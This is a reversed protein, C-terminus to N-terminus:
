ASPLRHTGLSMRCGKGDPNTFAAEIIRNAAYAFSAALRVVGGASAHAASGVGESAHPSRMSASANWASRAPVLALKSTLDLRPGDQVATVSLLRGSLTCSTRAWQREIQARVICRMASDETHWNLRVIPDTTVGVSTTDSITGDADPHRGAFGGGGGTGTDGSLVTVEGDWVSDLPLSSATSTVSVTGDGPQDATVTISGGGACAARVTTTRADTAAFRQASASAPVATALVGVAAALSLSLVPKLTSAM